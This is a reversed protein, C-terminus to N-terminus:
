VRRGMTMGDRTVAPGLATLAKGLWGAGGLALLLLGAALAFLGAIAYPVVRNLLLAYIKRRVAQEDVRKLNLHLWFHEQEGRSMRETIQTIIEHALGAWVQEGTQYM